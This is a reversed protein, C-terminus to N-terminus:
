AGPCHDTQQQRSAARNAVRVCLAHVFVVLPRSSPTGHVLKAGVVDEAKVIVSSHQMALARVMHDIEPRSHDAAIAYVCVEGAPFHGKSETWQLTFQGELKLSVVVEAGQFEDALCVVHPLNM